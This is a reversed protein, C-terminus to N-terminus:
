AEEILTLNDGNVAELIKGDEFKIDYYGFNWPDGKCPEIAVCIVTAIKGDCSKAVRFIKGGGWDSAGGEGRDFKVKKNLINM